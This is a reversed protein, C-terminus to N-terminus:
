NTRYGPGLMIPVFSHSHQTSQLVIPGVALSVDVQNIRMGYAYRLGLIFFLKEFIAKKKPAPINNWIILISPPFPFALYAKPVGSGSVSLCMEQFM